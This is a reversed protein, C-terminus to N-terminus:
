RTAQGIVNIVNLLAEPKDLVFDAPVNDAQRAGWSALAFKVGANKACMYDYYTDGLYLAQSAETDALELLKSAPEADPKHKETDEACVVHGFYKLLHQLNADNFVESRIRSTVIGCEINRKDLEALLEAIGDFVGVGSKFAKFLCEYYRNCANETDKIGMRAMAQITPIGYVPALEEDTLLRGFEEAMAYRYSDIVVKETDIMTGDVDFIILSYM